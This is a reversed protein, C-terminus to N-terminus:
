KAAARYVARFRPYFCPGCLRSPAVKAAKLAAITGAQGEDALDAVHTTIQGRGCLMNGNSGFALHVKRTETAGIVTFAQSITPM